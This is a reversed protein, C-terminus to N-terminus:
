EDKDAKCDERAFTLQSRVGKGVVDSDISKEGRLVPQCSHPPKGWASFQHSLVWNPAAPHDNKTPSVLIRLLTSLALTLTTSLKSLPCRMTLSINADPFVLCNSLNLCPDSASPPRTGGTSSEFGAARQLVVVGDMESLLRQLSPLDLLVPAQALTSGQLFLSFSSLPPAQLLLRLLVPECWLLTERRQLLLSLLLRPKVVLQLPLLVLPLLMEIILRQWLSKTTSLAVRAAIEELQSFICM